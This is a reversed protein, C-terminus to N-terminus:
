LCFPVRSRPRPLRMPQRHNCRLVVAISLVTRRRDCSVTDDDFRYNRFQRSKDWCRFTAYDFQPQLCHPQHAQLRIFKGSGRNEKRTLFKSRVFLYGTYCREPGMNRLLRARTAFQPRTAKLKKTILFYTPPSRDQLVYYAQLRKRTWRCSAQFENSGVM